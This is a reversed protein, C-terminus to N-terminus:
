RIKLGSATNGLSLCTLMVKSTSAQSKFKKTPIFHLIEGNCIQQNEWPYLLTFDCGMIWWMGSCIYWWGWCSVVAFTDIINVHLAEWLTHTLLHQVWQYCVKHYGLDQVIAQLALMWKWNWQRFSCGSMQEQACCERSEKYTRWILSLTQVSEGGPVSYKLQVTLIM